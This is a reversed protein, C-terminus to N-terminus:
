MVLEPLNGASVSAPSRRQSQAARNTPAALELPRDALLPSVVPFPPGTFFLVNSPLSHHKLEEVRAHSGMTQLSSCGPVNNKLDSGVM